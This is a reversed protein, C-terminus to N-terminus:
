SSTWPTWAIGPLELHIWIFGPSTWFTLSDLNFFFCNIFIFFCFFIFYFYFLYRGSTDLVFDMTDLCNWAIGPLYIFGPSTWFTLSDLNFFFFFFCLFFFVLREITGPSTNLTDLDLCFVTVPILVVM